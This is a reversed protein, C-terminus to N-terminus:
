GLVERETVIAGEDDVVRLLCPVGPVAGERVAQAADDLVRELDEDPRLPEVVDPADASVQHDWVDREYSSHYELQM